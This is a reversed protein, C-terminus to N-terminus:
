FINEFSEKVQSDYRFDFLLQPFKDWGKKGNQSQRYCRTADNVSWTSTRKYIECATHPLPNM